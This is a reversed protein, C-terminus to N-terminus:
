KYRERYIKQLLEEYSLDRDALSTAFFTKTSPYIAVEMARTPLALATKTVGEGIVITERDRQAQLTDGRPIQYLRSGDDKSLFLKDFSPGSSWLAPEEVTRPM